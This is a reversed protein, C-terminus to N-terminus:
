RPHRAHRRPAPQCAHEVVIEAEIGRCKRRPKCEVQGVEGDNGAQQCKPWLSAECQVSWRRAGDHRANLAIQYDGNLDLSTIRAASQPSLNRTLPASAEDRKRGQAGRWEPGPRCNGLRIRFVDGQSQGQTSGRPDSYLRAARWWRIKILATAYTRHLRPAAMVACPFRIRGCHLTLM